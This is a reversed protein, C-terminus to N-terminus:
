FVGKEYNYERKKMMGSLVDRVIDEIEEATEDTFDFRIEGVGADLLKDVDAILPTEMYIESNGLNNIVIKYHDNEENRITIGDELIDSEIKM